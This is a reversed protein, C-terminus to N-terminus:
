SYSYRVCNKFLERSEGTWYKAKSIGFFCTKTESNLYAIVSGINQNGNLVSAVYSINENSVKNNNSIYYYPIGLKRLDFFEETYAESATENSIIKLIGNSSKQSLGDRDVIGIEKGYNKNISIINYKKLNIKDINSLVGEDIFLANYKDLNAETIEEDKIIEVNLNMDNFVNMIFPNAVKKTLYGITISVNTSNNETLNINSNNNETSNITLNLEIGQGIGLSSVLSIFLISSLIVILAIIKKNEKKMEM